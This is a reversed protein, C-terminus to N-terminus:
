AAGDRKAKELEELLVTDLREGTERDNLYVIPPVVSMPSFGAIVLTEGDVVIQDGVRLESV